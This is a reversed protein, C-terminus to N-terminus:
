IPSVVCSSSVLSLSCRSSQRLCFRWLEATASWVQIVWKGMLHSSVVMTSIARVGQSTCTLSARCIWFKGISVRRFLSPGRFELNNSHYLWFGRFVMCCNVIGSEIAIAIYSVPVNSPVPTFNLGLALIEQANTLDHQTRNIVWKSAGEPRLQLAAM